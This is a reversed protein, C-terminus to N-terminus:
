FWISFVTVPHFSIWYETAQIAVLIQEIWCFSEILAVKYRENNAFVIMIMMVILMMKMMMVMMVVMMMIMMIMMIMIIMRMMMGTMAMKMM